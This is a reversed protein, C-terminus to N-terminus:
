SISNVNGGLNILMELIEYNHFASVIHIPSFGGLVDVGSEKVHYLPFIHFLQMSGNCYVVPLLSRSNFNIDMKTLTDLWELSLDTHSYVILVYLPSLDNKLGM